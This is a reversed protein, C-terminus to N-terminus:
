FVYFYPCYVRRASVEGYVLLRTLIMFVIFLNILWIVAHRTFARHWFDNPDNTDLFLNNNAQEMFFEGDDFPYDTDFSKLTRHQVPIRGIINNTHASADM